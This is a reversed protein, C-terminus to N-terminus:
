GPLLTRGTARDRNLTSTSIPLGVQTFKLWVASTSRVSNCLRLRCRYPMQAPSAVGGVLVHGVQEKGAANVQVQLVLADDTEDQGVARQLGILVGLPAASAPAAAVGAQTYLHIESELRGPVQLLQFGVSEKRHRGRCYDGALAWCVARVPEQFAQQFPPLSLGPRLIDPPPRVTDSVGVCRTLGRSRGGTTTGSEINTRGAGSISEHREM